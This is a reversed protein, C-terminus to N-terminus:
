ASKPRETAFFKFAVMENSAKEGGESLHDDYTDWVFIGGQICVEGNHGDEARGSYCFKEDETLPRSLKLTVRLRRDEEGIEPTIGTISVEPMGSHDAHATGTSSLSLLCVAALALIIALARYSGNRLHIAGPPVHGRWVRVADPGSNDPM